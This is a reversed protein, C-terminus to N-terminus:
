LLVGNQKERHEQGRLCAKGQRVAHSLTGSVDVHELDLRHACAQVITACPEIEVPAHASEM